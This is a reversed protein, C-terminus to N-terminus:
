ARKFLDKLDEMARAYGDFDEGCQKPPAPVFRPRSVQRRGPRDRSCNEERRGTDQRAEEAQLEKQYKAKMDSIKKQHRAKLESMEREDEKRKLSDARAHEEEYMKDICEVLLIDREAEAKARRDSQWRKLSMLQKKHTTVLAKSQDRSEELYHDLLKEMDDNDKDNTM